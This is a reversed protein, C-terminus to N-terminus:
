QGGRVPWVYNTNTKADPLVGGNNLYVYRAYTTNYAYTTSSWFNSSSLNNFPAGNTTWHATGSTNPVAPASFAHDVLSRLEKRNPLRWDGAASGDTLGCSGSALSNAATLANAWTRSNQGTADGSYFTTCNAEQLWILGTLNDKVTGDGNVTFRPYVKGAGTGLAGDDGSAYSTTQGTKAVPAPAAGPDYRGTVLAGAVYATKGHQIQYDQATAASTDVVNTSGSVGFISVGSKINGSALDTDGAVAGSGNHYGAAITQNSTSPTYNVAGNNTMTGTNSSSAATSFTKGSLAQAATASGTAGTSAGTVGFISVGSKINGAALNADPTVTVTKSSYVGAPLAQSLSASTQNSGASLSGTVLSGGVYGKAGSLMDSATGTGTSTNVVNTSGAVGLITKGSLINAAALDADVTRLDTEPYYGAAFSTTTSALSKAEMTGSKVGWGSSLLSWYTKGSLVDAAAAGSADDLAPALAMVQDLTHGTASPTASPEAFAGTRKARTAGTSLHQYLDEVTFLASAADTPAAPTDLSGAPVSRPPLAILAALVICHAVFRKM